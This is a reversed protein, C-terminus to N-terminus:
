ATRIRRWFRSASKHPNGTPTSRAAFTARISVRWRWTTSCSQFRAGRPPCHGALCGDRLLNVAATHREVAESAQGAEYLAQGLIGWAQAIGTDAELDEGRRPTRREWATVSRRQHEIARTADGFSLRVFGLTRELIGLDTLVKPDPNPHAALRNLIGLAKEYSSLAAQMQGLGSRAPNGQVDGIRKYAAALELQLASEGEAERALSDLYELATAIVNARIKATGPIDAM